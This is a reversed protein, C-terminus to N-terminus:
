SGCAHAIPARELEVVHANLPLYTYFIDSADATLLVSDGPLPPLRVRASGTLPNACYSLNSARLPETVWLRDGMVRAAIAGAAGPLELPRSSALSNVNVRWTSTTAGVTNQIWAGGDIIGGFTPQSASRPVTVQARLAGTRPDLRALYTPHEYGFSALLDRGAPDSAVQVPGRDPAAVVRNVRGSTLSVRDLQGAGVWLHGGALALSGTIAEAFRSSPLARSARVALGRPDLRWLTTADGSSTTLWLSGAALVMDDIADAFSRVALRRGDSADFRALEYVEGTHEGYPHDYPVYLSGGAAYGTTLPDQVDALLRSGAPLAAARTAEAKISSGEASSIGAGAVGVVVALAAARRRM